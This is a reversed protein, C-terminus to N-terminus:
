AAGRDEDKGFIAQTFPHDAPLTVPPETNVDVDVRYPTAMRSSLWLIELAVPEGQADTDLLVGDALERTGGVAPPHDSFQIKAADAGPDISVRMGVEEM